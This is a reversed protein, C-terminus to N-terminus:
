RCSSPGPRRRPQGPAHPVLLRHDHGLHHLLAAVGDRREALVFRRAPLLRRTRHDVVQIAASFSLFMSPPSAGRSSGPARRSIRCSPTVSTGSGRADPRAAAARAYRETRARHRARARSRRRSARADGVARRTVVLTVRRQSPRPEILPSKSSTCIPTASDTNQKRGSVWARRPLMMTSVKVAQSGSRTWRAM